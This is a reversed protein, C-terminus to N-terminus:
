IISATLFAYVPFLSLRLLLYLANANRLRYSYSLFTSSWIFTGWPQMSIFPNSIWNFVSLIPELSEKFKLWFTLESRSPGYKAKSLLASEEKEAVKKTTTTNTQGFFPFFFTIFHLWILAIREKEMTNFPFLLQLPSLATYANLFHSM